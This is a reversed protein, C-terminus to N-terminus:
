LVHSLRDSNKKLRLSTRDLLWELLSVALLPYKKKLQEFVQHSFSLLISDQVALLTAGHTNDRLLAREGVPAGPDLLAVVQTREGFGTRKQVALQGKVVFFLEDGAEDYSFLVKGERLHVEKMLPLLLEVDSKNFRPFLLEHLETNYEAM